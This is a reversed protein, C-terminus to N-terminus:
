RAAPQGSGRDERHRRNESLYPILKGAAKQGCISCSAGPASAINRSLIKLVKEELKAGM